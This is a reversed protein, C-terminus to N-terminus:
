IRNEFNYQGTERRNKFLYAIRSILVYRFAVFLPLGMQLLRGIFYQYSCGHYYFYLRYGSRCGAIHGVPEMAM